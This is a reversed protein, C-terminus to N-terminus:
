YDFSSGGIFERMVSTPPISTIESPNLAIVYSLFKRLRFSEPYAPSNPMIRCLLPEAYYKLLSLEYILTSNFMIDANEQYPFINLEEGTRVSNWRLITDEPTIGRSNYDRVMRRILRSDSTSIYNNEDISLSTLASAYVKYIKSQDIEATLQPNLAHIGEMILIDKDKFKITEGDFYRQGKVFDFKPIEVDKKDFIDNIQKNLFPLDLANISEFNYEGNKDKPTHERDLFYNDMAIVVPNLGLVKCQLAIRKSTTTKGSSSPGSILVMKVHKRRKYIDDAIDAYKREHLAESIQIMQKTMGHTIAQNITAISNIGLISCWNSNEKFVANLKDQYKYDTIVNASSPSPIQLCFGGGYPILNFLTIGGTSYLQPGYFTDAYGNLFYVSVYFRGLSELLAAKEERGNARFLKAAEKSEMKVKKIPIDDCVIKDMRRKIKVIDDVSIKAVIPSNDEKVKKTHLAAYLGNPLSYDLILSYQPFVESVAKQLVFCLSRLYTRKGDINSYDIFRIKHPMDIEFGLEKLQNDVFAALVSSSYKPNTSKFPQHITLLQHLTTGKECEVYQSTNEIFVRISNEM